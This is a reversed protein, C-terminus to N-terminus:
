SAPSARLMPPPSALPANTPAPPMEEAAPPTVTTVPMATPDDGTGDCGALTLTVVAACLSLLRVKGRQNM